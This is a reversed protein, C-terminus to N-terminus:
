ANLNEINIILEKSSLIMLNSKLAKLLIKKQLGFNKQQKEIFM